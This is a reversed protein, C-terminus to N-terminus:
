APVITGSLFLSLGVGIGAGLILGILGAYAILAGVERVVRFVRGHGRSLTRSAERM